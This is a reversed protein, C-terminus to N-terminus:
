QRINELINKFSGRARFLKMKLANITLGKENAIDAYPRDNLYHERVLEALDEPMQSLVSEIEDSKERREFSVDTNTDRLYLLEDMYEADGFTKKLKRYRTFTCNILIKFAWSKFKIGPRKEFKKANFYIKVFADQTADEAEERKKLIRQSTRLFSDQYKDVLIEFLRPNDLSKILIEEDKLTEIDEEM